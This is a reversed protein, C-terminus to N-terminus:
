HTMELALVGTQTERLGANVMCTKDQGGSLRRHNWGPSAKNGAHQQGEGTERNCGNSASTLQNSMLNMEQSGSLGKKRVRNVAGVRRVRVARSAESVSRERLGSVRDGGM